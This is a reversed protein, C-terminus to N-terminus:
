KETNIVTRRKLVELGETCSLLSRPDELKRIEIIHLSM